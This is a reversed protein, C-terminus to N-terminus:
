SPHRRRFQGPTKGSAVGQHTISQGRSDDETFWLARAINTGDGAGHGVKIGMIKTQYVRTVM